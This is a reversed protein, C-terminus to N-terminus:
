KKKKSGFKVKSLVAACATVALGAVAIAAVGGDGTVAAEVTTTNGFFGSQPAQTIQTESPQTTEQTPDTPNTNTVNSTGVLGTGSVTFQVKVSDTVSTNLAVDAVGTNDWGDYLYIRTGPDQGIATYAMNVANPSTIYSIQNGDIYVADVSIKMGSYQSTSVEPINVFLCEINNVTGEAVKWEVEYQADGSISATISGGPIDSLERVETTGMDGCLYATAPFGVANVSVSMAAASITAVACASMAAFFKKLNM